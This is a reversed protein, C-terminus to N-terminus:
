LSALRLSARAVGKSNVREEAINEEPIRAGRGCLGGTGAQYFTRWRRRRGERSEAATYFFPRGWHVELREGRVVRFEGGESLVAFVQDAVTVEALADLPHPLEGFADEFRDKAHRVVVLAEAGEHAAVVERDDDGAIGRRAKREQLAVAVLGRVKLHVVEEGGDGVLPVVFDARLLVRLGTKAVAVVDGAPKEGAPIRGGGVGVKLRKFGHARVGLALLSLDDEVSMLFLRDAKLASAVQHEGRRAASFGLNQRLAQAAGEFRADREGVHETERERVARGAAHLLSDDLVKGLAAHSLEVDSVEVAEARFKQELAFGNGFGGGDEVFVVRAFHDVREGSFAEEFVARGRRFPKGKRFLGKGVEDGVENLLASRFEQLLVAAKVLVRNLFRVGRFHVLLIEFEEGGEPEDRVVVAAFQLEVFVADVSDGAVVEGVLRRLFEEVEVVEKELGPKEERVFAGEHLAIGPDLHVFHLVERGQLERDDLLKPVVFLRRADADEEAVFLLRDEGEHACLELPKLGQAARMFHM